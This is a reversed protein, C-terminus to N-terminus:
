LIGLCVHLQCLTFMRTHQKQWWAYDAPHSRQEVTAIAICYKDNVNWSHICVKKMLLHCSAFDFRVCASCREFIESNYVFFLIFFVKYILQWCKLRDGLELMNTTLYWWKRFKRDSRRDWSIGQLSISCSVLLVFFFYFLVKKVNILICYKLKIIQTNRCIDFNSHLTKFIVPSSFAGGPQAGPRLQEFGFAASTAAM